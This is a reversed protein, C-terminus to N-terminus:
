IILSAKCKYKAKMCVLFTFNGEFLCLVSLCVKCISVLAEALIFFIYTAAHFLLFLLLLLTAPSPRISFALLNEALLLRKQLLLFPKGRYRSYVFCHQVIFVVTQSWIFIGDFIKMYFVQAVNQNQFMCHEHKNLPTLRWLYILTQSIGTICISNNSIRKFIMDVNNFFIIDWNYILM